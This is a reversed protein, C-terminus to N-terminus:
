LRDEAGVFDSSSDVPSTSTPHIAELLTETVNQKQNNHHVNLNNGDSLEYDCLMHLFIHYNRM